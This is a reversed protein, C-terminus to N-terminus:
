VQGSGSPPLEPSPDTGNIQVILRMSLMEGPLLGDAADFSGNGNRDITVYIFPGSSASTSTGLSTPTTASWSLTTRDSVAGSSTAWLLPAGLSSSASVSVFTTHQPAYDRLSIQELPVSGVNQAALSYLVYQGPRISSQSNITSCSADQFCNAASKGVIPVGAQATILTDESEPNLSDEAGPVGPVESWLHLNVNQSQGDSAGAVNGEITLTVPAGPALEILDLAAQLTAARTLETGGSSLVYSTPTFWAPGSNLVGKVTGAPASVAGSNGLEFSVSAPGLRVFQAVSDITLDPQGSSTVTSQGQTFVGNVTDSYDLYVTETGTSAPTYLVFATVSQAQDLSLSSVVPDDAAVYIGDGNDLAVSYSGAASTGTLTTTVTSNGLNTVVFPVPTLGLPASMTPSQPTVDAGYVAQVNLTFSASTQVPPRNDEAYELQAVNVIMSGAAPSSASDTGALACSLLAASLTTLLTRARM